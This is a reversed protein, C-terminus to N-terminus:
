KLCGQHTLPMHQFGQSAAALDLICDPDLLRCFHELYAQFLPAIPFIRDEPSPFELIM